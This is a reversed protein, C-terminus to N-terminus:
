PLWHWTLVKGSERTLVAERLGGVEWRRIDLRALNKCALILIVPRLYIESLLPGYLGRLQQHGRLTETLKCEFLVVRDSLVFFIDPQAYGPGNEDEFEIWQSHFIPLEKPLGAKLM